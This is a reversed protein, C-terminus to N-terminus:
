HTSWRAPYQFLCLTSVAWQYSNLNQFLPAFTAGWVKDGNRETGLLFVAEAV